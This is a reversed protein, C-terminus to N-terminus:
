HNKPEESICEIGLEDFRKIWLACPPFLGLVKWEPSSCGTQRSNSRPSKM